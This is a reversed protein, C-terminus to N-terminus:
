LSRLYEMFANTVSYALDRDQVDGTEIDHIIKIIEERSLTVHVEVNAPREPRNMIQM